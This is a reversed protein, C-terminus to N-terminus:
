KGDRGVLYLTANAKPALQHKDLSVAQVINMCNIFDAENLLLESKYYNAIIAKVIIQKGSNYQIAEILKLDKLKNNQKLCGLNPLKIGQLKNSYALKLNDIIQQTENNTAM